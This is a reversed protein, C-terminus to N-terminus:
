HLCQTARRYDFYARRVYEILVSEANAQSMREYIADVESENLLRYDELIGSVEWEDFLGLFVQFLDVDLEKGL